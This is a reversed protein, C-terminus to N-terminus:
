LYRCFTEFQFLRALHKNILKLIITTAGTIKKKNFHQASKKDGWEQEENMANWKSESSEVIYAKIPWFFFLAFLQQDYCIVIPFLVRIQAEKERRFYPVRGCM